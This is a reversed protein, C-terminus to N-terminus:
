EDAVAIICTINRVSRSKQMNKCIELSLFKHVLLFKKLRAFVCDEDSSGKLLFTFRKNTHTGKGTPEIHLYQFRHWSMPTNM